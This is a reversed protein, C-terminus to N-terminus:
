ASSPMRSLTADRPSPSTYLLCGTGSKVAGEIHELPYAARTNETLSTDTYDAVKDDGKLVVNELIAGHKIANWIQPEKEETLDICKAYCGGEFNFIGKDSWGHEDDGILKREPNASLTTKGTGSLGFFLAGNEEGELSINASCHMAMIDKLPYLYNLVSIISKKMEGAYRTGGILILGEDFNVAIFTKTNTGHIEPKADFFPTHVITFNPEISALDEKPPRIFLQKCFLNAWAEENIVRVAIQNEKEAGAYADRVFLEKGELYAAQDAKLKEFHEASMSQNVSGWDVTNETSATKVIFKDKPSRGTHAGTDCKLAGAGSLVGESRALSAEILEETSLNTKLNGTKQLGKYSTQTNPTVANEM